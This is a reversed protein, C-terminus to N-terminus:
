PVYWTQQLTGNCDWVQVRGGNTFQDPAHVDLCKGAGSKLTHGEIRWTQQLSGNCDWVQVKAGNNHQDPAHVDLCKGAGSRIARGDFNWTQQLTSNCGWVQVRGGNTHQDPAHVDLCKRAGSVIIPALVSLASSSSAVRKCCYVKSGTLCEAGSSSGPPPTSAAEDSRCGGDCFPATGDWRCALGTKCCLAKNGTVCASGFHTAAPNGIVPTWHGPWTSLRAMEQEDGRCEGDCIPSTGDWRCQASVPLPSFVLLALASVIWIRHLM